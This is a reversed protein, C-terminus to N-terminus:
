IILVLSTPIQIWTWALLGYASSIVLYSVCSSIFYCVIIILFYHFIKDIKPSFFAFDPFCGLDSIPMLTFSKLMVDIGMWRGNVFSYKRLVSLHCPNGIWLCLNEVHFYANPHDVQRTSIKFYIFMVVFTNRAHLFFCLPYIFM